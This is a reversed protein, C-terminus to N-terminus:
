QCYIAYHSRNTTKYDDSAYANGSARPKCTQSVALNKKKNRQRSCLSSRLAYLMPITDTQGDTPRRVVPWYTVDKTTLLLLAGVRGAYVEAMM